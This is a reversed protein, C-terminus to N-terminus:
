DGVIWPGGRASASGPGSSASVCLLAVVVGQLAAKGLASQIVSRKPKQHASERCFEAIEKSLEEPTQMM